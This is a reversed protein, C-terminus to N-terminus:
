NREINFAFNYRNM